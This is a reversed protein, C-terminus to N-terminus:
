KKIEKTDSAAATITSAEQKPSYELINLLEPDKIKEAITVADAGDTTKIHINAGFKLLFRINQKLSNVQDEGMMGMFRGFAIGNLLKSLPTFGLDDKINIILEPKKLHSLFTQLIEPNSSSAALHLPTIGFGYRDSLKEIPNAGGDLLKEVQEKSQSLLAEALPNEAAFSTPAFTAGYSVISAFIIFKISKM